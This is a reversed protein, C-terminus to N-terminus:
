PELTLLEMQETCRNTRIVEVPMVLHHAGIGLFWAPELNLHSMDTTVQQHAEVWPAVDIVYSFSQQGPQARVHHFLVHRCTENVSEFDICLVCVEPLAAVSTFEAYDTVGLNSLNFLIKRFLVEDLYFPGAARMGLTIAMKRVEALSKNTLTAAAALLDDHSGEQAVRTFPSKFGAPLAGNGPKTSASAM